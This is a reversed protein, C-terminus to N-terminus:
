ADRRRDSRSILWFILMVGFGLFLMGDIYMGNDTAGSALSLGVFAIILGVLGMFQSAM